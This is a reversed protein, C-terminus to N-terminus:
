GLVPRNGALQGVSRRDGDHGAALRPRRATVNRTTVAAVPGNVKRTVDAQARARHHHVPPAQLSGPGNQTAAFSSPVLRSSNLNLSGLTQGPAPPALLHRM